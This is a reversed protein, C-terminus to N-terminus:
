TSFAASSDPMACIADANFVEDAKTVSQTAQAQPHAVCEAQTKGKVGAHRRKAEPTTATAANNEKIKATTAEARPLAATALWANSM